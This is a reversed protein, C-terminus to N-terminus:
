FERLNRNKKGTFLILLGAVLTVLVALLPRISVMTEM